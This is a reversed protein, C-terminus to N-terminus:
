QVTEDGAAKKESVDMKTRLAKPASSKKEEFHELRGAMWKEM